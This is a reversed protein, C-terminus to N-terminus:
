SVLMGQNRNRGSSSHVRGPERELPSGGTRDGEFCRFLGRARLTHAIKTSSRPLARLLPLVPVRINTTETDAPEQVGRDTRSSVTIVFCFFFGEALSALRPAAASIVRLRGRVAVESGLRAAPESGVVVNVTRRGFPGEYASVSPRSKWRVAMYQSYTRRLRMRKRRSPCTGPDKTFCLTWSRAAMPKSAALNDSIALAPATSISIGNLWSLANHSSLIKGQSNTRSLAVESSRRPAARITIRWIRRGPL